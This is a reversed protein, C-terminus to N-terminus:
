ITICLNLTKFRMVHSYGSKEMSYSMGSNWRTKTATGIMYSPLYGEDREIGKKGKKREKNTKRRKKKKYRKRKRKKLGKM